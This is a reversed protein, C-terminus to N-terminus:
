AVYTVAFHGEIVNGIACRCVPCQPDSAVIHAACAGCVTSHRCPEFMTGIPAAMCVVCEREARVGAGDPAAFRDGSERDLLAIIEALTPREVAAQESCSIGLEVLQGAEAITPQTWPALRADLVGPLRAEFAGRLAVRLRGRLGSPAGGTALELLVIGYAYVDTLRSVRGEALLEPCLYAPTGDRKGIGVQASCQGDRGDSHGIRALGFDGIRARMRADLLVNTTKLDLHFVPAGPIATQLHQLGCAVDRAIGKRQPWHLSAAALDDDLRERVNGMCMWQYVIARQRGCDHSVGLLRVISRHRYRSLTRVEADFERQGQRSQASLVKVAVDRGGLRARYVTGFGGTGVVDCADFHGTAQVIADWRYQAFADVAADREDDADSRFAAADAVDVGDDLGLRDYATSLDAMYRESAADGTDAPITSDLSTPQRTGPARDGYPDDADHLRDADAEFRGAAYGIGDDNGNGIEDNSYSTDCLPGDGNDNGYGDDEVTLATARSSDENFDADGSNVEGGATYVSEYMNGANEEYGYSLAASDIGIDGGDTGNGDCYTYDFVEHGDSVWALVHLGDDGNSNEVDVDGDVGDDANGDEEEQEGDDIDYDANGNYDDVNDDDGAADDVGDVDETDDNGNDDGDDSYDNYGDDGVGDVGDTDDVDGGGDDDVGDVEDGDVVDACSDGYEDDDGFIGSGDDDVPDGCEDDDDEAGDDNGDDGSGGDGDCDSGSGGNSNNSGNSDSGHGGDDDDGDDNDGDGIYLNGDDAGGSISYFRGDVGMVYPFFFPAGSGGIGGTPFWSAM